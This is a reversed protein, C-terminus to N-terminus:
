SLAPSRGKQTAIINSRELYTAEPLIVDAYWATDSYNVDIAVLLDLNDLVRQQEDPDPFAAIPDFRYAIFAKVPYPEGTKIAKYLNVM